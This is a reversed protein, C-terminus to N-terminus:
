KKEPRKLNIANASLGESELAKVFRIFGQAQALLLDKHLQSELNGNVLVKSINQIFVRQPFIYANRYGFVGQLHEVPRLGGFLGGIGIFCVPRGEFSEPYKWFDIFYKLVGPYSGNYEPVVVILGNSNTIEEVVKKFPPPLEKGYSDPGVLSFDFEALDIISTKEGLEQYIKQLMEAIVKSKSGRRNTGVLIHKVPGGRRLSSKRM